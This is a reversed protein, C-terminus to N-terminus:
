TEEMALAGKGQGGKEHSRAGNRLVVPNALSIEPLNHSLDLVNPYPYSQRDRVQCVANQCGVEAAPRQSGGESARCAAHAQEFM